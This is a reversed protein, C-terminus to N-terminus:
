VTIGIAIKSSRIKKIIIFYDIDAEEDAFHKSVSGSIGIGRVYPFKYLLSTIKQAKLILSAARENGMKRREALSPDNHLSYFEHLRFIRKENELEKLAQNFENEKIPQDLFSMIESATLPYRFLEFYVLVKLISLEIKLPGM